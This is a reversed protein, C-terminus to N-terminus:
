SRTTAPIASMTRREPPLRRATPCSESSRKRPTVMAPGRRGRCADIEGARGFSEASSAGAKGEGGQEPLSPGSRACTHRLLPGLLMAAHLANLVDCPRDDAEGRHGNRGPQQEPFQVAQRKGAQAFREGGYREAAPQQPRRSRARRHPARRTRGSRAGADRGAGRAPPEDREGREGGVRDGVVDAGRHEGARDDAVAGIRGLPEADAFDAHEDGEAREGESEARRREAAEQQEDAGFEDLTRRARRQPEALRRASTSIAAGAEIHDAREQM